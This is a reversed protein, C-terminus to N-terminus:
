KRTRTRTRTRRRAKEWYTVSQTAAESRQQFLDDEERLQGATEFREVLKCLISVIRILLVKGEQVREMTACRKAVLADLCAACETASGRADDFSKARVQRQRKGNGEATNLLASLSARDLQDSVEATKGKATRTVEDLLDTVWAIFQLELQYVDLKEHDFMAPLLGTRAAERRTSDQSQQKENM